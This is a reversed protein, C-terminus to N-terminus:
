IKFTRVTKINCKVAVAGKTLNDNTVMRVAGMIALPEFITYYDADEYITAMYGRYKLVVDNICKEAADDYVSADDNGSECEFGAYIWADLSCEDVNDLGTQYGQANPFSDETLLTSLQESDIFVSYYPFYYDQWKSIDFVPLLNYTSGNEAVMDSGIQNLEKRLHTWDKM